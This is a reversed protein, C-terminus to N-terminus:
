FGQTAGILLFFGAAVFLFDAGLMVVGPLNWGIVGFTHLLPILGFALVVLGIIASPMSLAHRMEQQEKLADVLLFVGGAVALIWLGIGLVFPINWGIVGFTNLLPILGLALFVLGLVASIGKRASM